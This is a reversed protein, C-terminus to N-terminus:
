AGEKRKKIGKWELHPCSCVSGGNRKIKFLPLRVCQRQEKEKQILPLWVHEMEKREFPPLM